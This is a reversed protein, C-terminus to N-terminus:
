RVAVVPGGELSPAFGEAFFLITVGPYPAMGNGPGRRVKGVADM